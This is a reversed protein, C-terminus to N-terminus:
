QANGTSSPDNESEPKPPWVPRPPPGLRLVPRAPRITIDEPGDLELFIMDLNDTKGERPSKPTGPANEANM